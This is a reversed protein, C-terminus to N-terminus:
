PRVRLGALRRPRAAPGTSESAATSRRAATPEPEATNPDPEAGSSPESGSEKTTAPAAGDDGGTTEQVSEAILDPIPGMGHGASPLVPAFWDPAAPSDAPQEDVSGAKAPQAKAAPSEVQPDAAKPEADYPETAEPGADAPEAAQPPEAGGEVIMPEVTPRAFAAAPTAVPPETRAPVQRTTQVSSATRVPTADPSPAAVTSTPRRRKRFRGRTTARDTEDPQEDSREYPEARAPEPAVAARAPRRLSVPVLKGEPVPDQQLWRLNKWTVATAGAMVLTVLIMPLAVGFTTDDDDLVAYAVWGALLTLLVAVAVAKRATSRSMTLCYLPADDTPVVQMDPEDATTSVPESTLM